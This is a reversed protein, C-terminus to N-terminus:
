RSEAVAALRVENGRQVRRFSRAVSSLGRDHGDCQYHAESTVRFVDPAKPDARVEIRVRGGPILEVSEGQYGAPNALLRAAALELGSRALSEVQLQYQRREVLRRGALCEWTLATAIVTVIALAVVAILLAAGRRPAATRTSSSVRM